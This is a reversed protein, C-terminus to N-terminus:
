WAAVRGVCASPLGLLGQWGSPQQAAGIVSCAHPSGHAAPHGAAQMCRCHQRDAACYLSFLLVSRCGTRVRHWGESCSARPSAASGAADTCCVAERCRRM